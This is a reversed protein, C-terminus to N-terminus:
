GQIEKKSTNGLRGLFYWLAVAFIWGPVFLARHIIGVSAYWILLPSLGVVLARLVEIAEKRFKGNGRHLFFSLLHVVSFVGLVINGFVIIFLLALFPIFTKGINDLDAHMAIVNWLVGVIFLVIGTVFIVKRM